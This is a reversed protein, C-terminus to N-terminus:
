SESELLEWVRHVLGAAIWIDDRKLLTKFILDLENLSLLDGRLSDVFVGLTGKVSLGLKKAEDRAKLDDLLILDAKKNMALQIAHKEGRHLALSASVPPLSADALNISKIDQKRLALELSLADSAGRALGDSVAETYVASPISIQGYLPRLLHLCGLKALAILPGSNSVVKM